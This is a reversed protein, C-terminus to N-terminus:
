TEGCIQAGDSCVESLHSVYTFVNSSNPHQLRFLREGIMEWNTNPLVFESSSNEFNLELQFGNGEWLIQQERQIWQSQPLQQWSIIYSLGFESDDFLETLEAEWGERAIDTIRFSEVTSLFPEEEVLQIEYYQFGVGLGIVRVPEVANFDRNSQVFVPVDDSLSGILYGVQESRYESGEVGYFSLSEIASFNELETFSSPFSERQDNVAQVQQLREATASAFFSGGDSTDEVYISM